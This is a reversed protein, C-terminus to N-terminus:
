HVEIWSEAYGCTLTHCRVEDFITLKSRVPNKMFQQLLVQHGYPL